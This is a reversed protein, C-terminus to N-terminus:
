RPITNFTASLETKTNRYLKQIESAGCPNFEINSFLNTKILTDKHTEIVIKLNADDCWNGTTVYYLLLEPNSNKMYQSNEYIYNKLEIFKKM